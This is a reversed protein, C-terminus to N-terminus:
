TTPTPASPYARFVLVNEEYMFAEREFQMGLRKMVNISAINEPSVCAFVSAVGRAFTYQLVAAAAESAYGQRRFAKKVALVLEHESTEDYRKVGCRGVFVGDPKQRVAWGGFGASTNANLIRELEVTSEELTRVGGLFRMTEPESNLAHLEDLDAHTFRQLTLRPTSLTEM